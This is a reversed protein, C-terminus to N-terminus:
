RALITPTCLHLPALLPPMKPMNRRSVATMMAAAKSSIANSITLKRSTTSSVATAFSEAKSAGSRMQTGTDTTSTSKRTPPTSGPLSNARM